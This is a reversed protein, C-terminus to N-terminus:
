YNNIIESKQSEFEEETIDGVLLDLELDIIPDIINDYEEQIKAFPIYGEATKEINNYLETVDIKKNEIYISTENNTTTYFKGNWSTGKEAIEKAIEKTTKM